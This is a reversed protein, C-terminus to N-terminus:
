TGSDPKVTDVNVDCGALRLVAKALANVTVQYEKPIYFRSIEEKLQTDSLRRMSRKNRWFIKSNVAEAGESKYKERHDQSIHFKIRLSSDM